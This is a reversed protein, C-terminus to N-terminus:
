PTTGGGLDILNEFPRLRFLKGDLLWRSELQHDVEFGGLLDAHRNRRIHQRPRIPHDPSFQYAATLLLFM